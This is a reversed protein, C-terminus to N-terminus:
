GATNKEKNGLDKHYARGEEAGIMQRRAEMGVESIGYLTMDRHLRQMDENQLINEVSQKIKMQNHMAKMDKHESMNGALVSASLTVTAAFLFLKKM